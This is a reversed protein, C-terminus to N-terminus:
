RPAVLLKTATLLVLLSGDMDAPKLRLGQLPGHGLASRIGLTSNSNTPRLSNAFYTYVLYAALALLSVLLILIADM